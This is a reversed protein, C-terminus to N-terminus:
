LLSRGNDSLNIFGSCKPNFTMLADFISLIVIIKPM